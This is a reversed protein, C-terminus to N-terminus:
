ADGASGYDVTALRASPQPNACHPALDRRIQEGIRRTRDGHKNHQM